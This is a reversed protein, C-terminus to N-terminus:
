RGGAAKGALMGILAAFYVGSVPLEVSLDWTYFPYSGMLVDILVAVGLITVYTKSNFFESTVSLGLVAGIVAGIVLVGVPTM